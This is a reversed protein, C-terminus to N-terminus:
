DRKWQKDLSSHLIHIMHPQLFVLFPHHFSYCVPDGDEECHDRDDEAEMEYISATAMLSDQLHFLNEFKSDYLKQQWEKKNKKADEM